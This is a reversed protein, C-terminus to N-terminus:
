LGCVFVITIITFVMLTRGQRTAEEALKRSSEDESINAENQEMGLVSNM